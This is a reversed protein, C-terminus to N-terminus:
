VKSPPGTADYAPFPPRTELERVPAPEPLQKPATRAAIHFPDAPLSSGCASCCSNASPDGANDEHHEPIAVQAGHHAHHGDQAHHAASPFEMCCPAGFVMRLGISVLLLIQLIPHPDRAM